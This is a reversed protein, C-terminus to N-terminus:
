GGRRGRAAAAAQMFADTAAAAERPDAGAPAGTRPARRPPAPAGPAAELEARVRASLDLLQDDLDSRVPAEPASPAQAPGPARQPVPPRPPVTALVARLDRPRDAAHTRVVAHFTQAKRDRQTLSPLDPAFLARLTAPISAHELRTHVVTGPQIWPSILVSPVRM